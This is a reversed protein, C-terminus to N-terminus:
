SLRLLYRVDDKHETPSSNGLFSDWGLRVGKATGALLMAPRVRDARLALQVECQLGPVSLLALMRELALAGMAGPLFREFDDSDLPGIRLRIRLDRRWKRYGLAGSFGLRANPGGMQCQRNEDIDDWGGVFQEIMIPVDFYDPLICQLAAISVPRQRLLGAYFGAVDPRVGDAEHGVKRGGFAESRTGSLALLLPLFEDKGRVVLSHEVRYKGWVQFYLSVMHNSYIDLFARTSDDRARQQFVAVQETYHLPLTGSVGLLGMFSPTIRVRKLGQLSLLTSSSRDDLGDDGFDVELAEIESAPFAMSLSNQFRLFQRLAREYPIGNQRMCIILLRVAQVFQFRYPEDLLTRILGPEPRRQATQM